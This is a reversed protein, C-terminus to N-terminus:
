VFNEPRARLLHRQNRRSEGLPRELSKRIGDFRGLVRCRVWGHEPWSGPRRTNGPM